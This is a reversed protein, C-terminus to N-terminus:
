TGYGANSANPQPRMETRLWSRAALWDRKVTIASVGVVEATEEVSLGGFYRLEVIQRHRPSQKELQDLACDLALVEASQQESLMDYQEDLQVVAPDSGRKAAQRRRAYEILVRRMVSAAVGIFHARNQWDPQDRVLRIYAENVLATPQLTHGTREGALYVRALGRLQHFIRPILEEAAANEGARM